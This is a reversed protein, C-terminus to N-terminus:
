DAWLSNLALGVNGFPLPSVTVNGDLTVVLTRHREQVAFVELTRLEPDILRLHGVGGNAYIPMKEVRDVPATSTSLVECCWDPASELWPGRPLQWVRECRWGALDPVLIDEGIHIESRDLIWRGGPGCGGVEYAGGVKIGLASAARAHRPAPLPRTVLRGGFIEAVVHEPLRQIDDFTAPKDLTQVM